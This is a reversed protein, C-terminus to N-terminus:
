VEGPSIGFREKFKRAFYSASEIGVEYMVERVTHKKKSKLLYYAHQLRLELIFNVPTMGTLNKIIRSIQRQSYNLDKALDSVKYKSDSIHDKISQEAATLIEEELSLNNTIFGEQKQWDDRELKNTLLNHIRAKYEYKNFPKTIYDDVGLRLGALKDEELTLASLFIFPTRNKGQLENVKAKLQLGDMNPMMIDSSILDYDNIQIMRLAEYGDSAFSCRYEAELISRLYDRMETNDEILLLNPKVGNILIPSYLESKKESTHLDNIKESQTLEITDIPIDLIFTSGLGLNSNVTLSGEFLEALEKALALGIGTGGGEISRAVGSQYFRNFIKERENLPIGQGQDKILVKLRKRDLIAKCYITSSKPSYKIANSILNNIITELKESDIIAYKDELNEKVILKIDRSEAMSEFTFVVRNFFAQLAVEQKSLEIHGNELKSLALIENVMELLRDANNYALHISKKISQENVKEMADSLPGLILTIPTRLEHSVNTFFQTKLEDLDKLKEAEKTKEILAWEAEKKKTKQRESFFLFIGVSLLLALISGGILSKQQSEKKSLQLEQKALEADKKKTEYKTKLELLNDQINEEYVDKSKDYAIRLKDYAKPYNEKQAYALSLSNNTLYDFTRFDAIDTADLVIQYNSIASDAQKFYLFADGLSKYKRIEGQYDGTEKALTISRRHAEISKLYLDQNRYLDALSGLAYILERKMDKTEAIDLAQELYATRVEISDYAISLNICARVIKSENKIQEAIALSKKLYVISGSIDLQGMMQIAMSNLLDIEQIPFNLQESMEIAKFLLAQSSAYDGQKELINAELSMMRISLQVQRLKSYIPKAIQVYMYASDLKGKLIYTNALHRSADAVGKPYSIEEALLFAKFAYLKSSDVSTGHIASSMKLLSQVYTTDEKLTKIEVRISDAKSQQSIM